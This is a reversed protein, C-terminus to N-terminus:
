KNQRELSASENSNIKVENSTNVSESSNNSHVSKNLFIVMLFTFLLNCCLYMAFFPLVFKIQQSSDSNLQIPQLKIQSFFNDYIHHYLMQYKEPLYSTM